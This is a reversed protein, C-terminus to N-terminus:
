PKNSIVIRYGSFITLIVASPFLVTLVKINKLIKIYDYFVLTEANLNKLKPLIMEYLGFYGEILSKLALALLLIDLNAKSYKSSLHLLFLKIM